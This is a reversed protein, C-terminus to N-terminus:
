KRKARVRRPRATGRAMETTPAAELTGLAMERARRALDLGTKFRELAQEDPQHTTVANLLVKFLLKLQDQYAEEIAAVDPRDAAM